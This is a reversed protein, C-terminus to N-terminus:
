KACQQSLERPVFAAAFFLGQSCATRGILKKPFREGVGDAFTANFNHGMADREIEIKTPDISQEVMKITAEKACWLFLAEARRIDAPYESIRDLERRTLFQRWTHPHLSGEREVDIGIAVVADARAVAAAFFGGLRHDFVHTISGVVDTPWLPARSPGITLDVNEVGLM